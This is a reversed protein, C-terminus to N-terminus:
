SFRQMIGLGEAERRFTKQQAAFPADEDTRLSIMKDTALDTVMTNLRERAQPMYTVIENLLNIVGRNQLASGAMVPISKLFAKRVIESKM